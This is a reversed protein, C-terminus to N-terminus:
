GTHLFVIKLRKRYIELAWLFFSRAVSRCVVNMLKENKGEEEDERTIGNEVRKSSKPDGCGSRQQASNSVARYARERHARSPEPQARSFKIWKRTSYLKLNGERNKYIKNKYCFLADVINQKYSKHLM